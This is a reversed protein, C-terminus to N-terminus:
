WILHCIWVNWLNARPRRPLTHPTDDNLRGCYFGPNRSTLKNECLMVAWLLPASTQTKWSCWVERESNVLLAKSALSLVTDCTYLIIRVRCKGLWTPGWSRWGARDAGLWGRAEIWFGWREPLGDDAPDLDPALAAGRWLEAKVEWGCRLWKRQNWKMKSGTCRGHVGWEWELAKLIRGMSQGWLVCPYHRKQLHNERWRRM